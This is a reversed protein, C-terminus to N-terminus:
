LRGLYGIMLGAVLCLVGVAILQKKPDHKIEWILDDWKDKLKM